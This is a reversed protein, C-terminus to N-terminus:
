WGVHGSSWRVQPFALNSYLTHSLAVSCKCMTPSGCFLFVSVSCIIDATLTGKISTQFFVKGVLMVAQGGSKPSLLILICLLLAVSCKCMTLAVSCFFM